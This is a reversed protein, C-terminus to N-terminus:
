LAQNKKGVIAGDDDSTPDPFASPISTSSTGPGSSARRPGAAVPQKLREIARMALHPSLQQGGAGVAVEDLPRPIM